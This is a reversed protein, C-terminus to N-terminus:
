SAGGFDLVTQAIEAAVAGSGPFMDDVTDGEQYGLVDLVWRTWAPPKAGSFGVRMTPAVIWDRREIGGTRTRRSKPVVFFVPEWSPTLRSGCPAVNPRCWAGIRADLPLANTYTRMNEVTYTAAIAFGDYNDLLHEVMAEHAKPDDWEGAEPHEDARYRGGYGIGQGGVGYWRHARGLYPPDAICLKM